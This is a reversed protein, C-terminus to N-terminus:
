RIAYTPLKDKGYEIFRDRRNNEREGWEFGWDGIGLKERYILRTDLAFRSCNINNVMALKWRTTM